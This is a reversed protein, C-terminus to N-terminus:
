VVAGRGRGDVVWGYGEGVVEFGGDGDLLGVVGRWFGM